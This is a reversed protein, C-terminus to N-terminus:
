MKVRAGVFMFRGVATTPQITQGYDPLQDFLNSVGGYFQFHDTAAVSAYINHQWRPKIYYYEAAVFDPNSGSTERTYRLTKDFWQLGYNLTLVGKTWSLNSTVQYKPAVSAITGRYNTAPAGPVGIFLLKDLYNGNVQLNFLGLNATPLRWNLNFDLGATQFSAVNQPGVSFGIVNGAQVVGSAPGNQRTIAGCFQNDLTPSDVCLQALQIPSVTNIANKLRIDYWDASLTLGPIFRPSLVVGATWTNAEEQRLLPNGGATGSVNISRNDNYTAPDAGLGQLLTRCNAARYQTGNGTNAPICPDENFFAFTQSRGGFLEGINPARIAVSYTGRFTIDRIPAYMGDVKWTTTRGITSYDSVRIAAGLELDHAFRMNKAIPANLEAFVEKVDFSGRTPSLANTFTLGQQELPDPTFRSIEKRYEAGFAYALPGGPLEFFKAFDGSVSASVVHQEVSSRDTTPALIFAIGAPDSQGEGLINIPRCQGPQFTTRPLVTRGSSYPQNPAWNPDLNARCTIQGTTPDRVADIAAFFRDSYIDNTYQSRVDTRGFVYSVEYHTKDELDGRLGIVTRYTDRKISEGRQGNGNVGLDFNDRSVLAGGIQPDIAARINAPLYPNDGEVLINYDFTPQALSFSKTTAYKAEGFLTVTDSIDYHGLFNAIHREIRPQLDNLYRSVPTSSGGVAYGGPYATGNDYVAGTGTFDPVGDGDVDVAGDPSSGYYRADTIPIRAPVTGNPNRTFVPYVSQGFQPRQKAQLRDDISYQYALAVNGRGDSFNRGGTVAILRQGADGRDSIGAQGRVTLGEFNQRLRFNVVGSVGDAGYIASAGGTLIDVGEILDTPITNIDVSQEGPIGSVHRRGDVLTLTRQRGLNRLDLTNLGTEGIGARDGSNNASGGSGVLAPYARLFDTVNTTGQAEFTKADLTVIPSPTSFDQRRIRSGTVVVDGTQGANSSDEVTGPNPNQGPLNADTQSTAPTTEQAQAASSLSAVAVAMAAVGHAFAIRM